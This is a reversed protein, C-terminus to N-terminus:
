WRPVQCGSRNLNQIPTRAFIGSRLNGCLLFIQALICSQDQKQAEHFKAAAVLFCACEATFNVTWSSWLPLLFPRESVLRWPAAHHFYKMYTLL